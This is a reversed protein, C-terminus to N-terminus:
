LCLWRTMGTGAHRGRCRNTERERRRQAMRPHNERKQHGEGLSVCVSSTVQGERERERERIHNPILLSVASLFLLPEVFLLIYCYLLPSARTQVCYFAFFRCYLCYGFLLCLAARPLFFLNSGRFLHCFQVCFSETVVITEEDSNFTDKFLVIVCFTLTVRKISNSQITRHKFGKM